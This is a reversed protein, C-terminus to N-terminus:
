WTSTPVLHHPGFFGIHVKGTAGHRDDYFYIRPIQPGGGEAIKLHAVMLKRGSTDLNMDVDFERCARLADVKLVTESENMALKKPSAPWGNPSKAAKCWEWFGPHFARDLAFTHLALLARWSARGWTRAELRQDLEALDRNASDPIVLGSLHEQAAKFADTCCTIEPLLGSKIQPAVLTSVLQDQLTQVRGESEELDALLDFNRGETTALQRELDHVREILEDITETDSTAASTLLHRLRPYEIPARRSAMSPALLQVITHAIGKPDRLVREPDFVRHRWPEQEDKSFGPLYVRVAGAEIGLEGGLLKNLPDQEAGILHVSACGALVQAAYIGADLCQKADFSPSTAFAVIPLDRSPDALRDAFGRVETPGLATPRPQLRIPGRRPDLGTAILRTSLEPARIQFPAFADRSVREQDVWVSGIGSRTTTTILTTTLREIGDDFHVVCRQISGVDSSGRRVLTSAGAVVEEINEEFTRAGPHRLNVWWGFACLARQHIDNAYDQWIARYILSM